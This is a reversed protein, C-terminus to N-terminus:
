ILMPGSERMSSQFQPRSIIHEDVASDYLSVNCAVDMRGSIDCDQYLWVAQGDYRNDNLQLVEWPRVARVGLKLYM